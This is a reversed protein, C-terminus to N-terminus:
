EEKGKVEAEEEKMEKRRKCKRGKKRIETCNDKKRLRERVGGEEEEGEVEEEEELALQWVVRADPVAPATTASSRRRRFGFSLCAADNDSDLRRESEVPTAVSRAKM